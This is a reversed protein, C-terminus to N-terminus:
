KNVPKYISVYWHAKKAEYRYDVKKSFIVRKPLTAEPDNTYLPLFDFNVLATIFSTFHNDKHRSSCEKLSQKFDERCDDTVYVVVPHGKELDTPNRRERERGHRIVTDCCSKFRRAFRSLEFSPVFYGIHKDKYQLEIAEMDSSGAGHQGSSQKQGSSSPALPLAIRQKKRARKNAATSARPSGVTAVLPSSIKGAQGVATPTAGRRGPASGLQQRLWAQQPDHLQELDDIEQQISTQSQPKWNCEQEMQEIEKLAQICPTLFTLRVHMTLTFSFFICVLSRTTVRQAFWQIVDDRHSSTTTVLKKLKELDIKELNEIIYECPVSPPLLFEKALQAKVSQDNSLVSFDFMLLCLLEFLQRRDIKELLVPLISQQWHQQFSTTTTM